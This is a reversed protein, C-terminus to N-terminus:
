CGDGLKDTGAFGPNVCDLFEITKEFANDLGTRRLRCGYWRSCPPSAPYKAFPTFWSVFGVAEFSEEMSM